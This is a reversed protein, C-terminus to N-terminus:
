YKGQMRIEPQSMGNNVSSDASREVSDGPQGVSQEKNGALEKAKDMLGSM